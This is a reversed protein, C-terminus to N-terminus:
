ITKGGESFANEKLAKTVAQREPISPSAGKKSVALASAMSAFRLIEQIKKGEALGTIFYGTFTDGAATTDVVKVLYPKQCYKEGKELYVSGKEGLTLMVKMHPYNKDFFDLIKEVQNAGAIAEGEVENLILYDVKHFDIKKINEDIPSPNFIVKMGKGHAKEVILDVLNTENQLVAFDGEGFHSLVEDIKVETLMRNSGPYLFISNEGKRSVQIIAHGSKEETEELFSVNVGSDALVKKLFGGEKGIYGAHYVKSGARSAAISQNLGKGGPFVEMKESTQTEGTKVIHDLSYVYDINCSGFNLVKM